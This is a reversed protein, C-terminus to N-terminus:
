KKKKFMKIKNWVSKINKNLSTDFKSDFPNDQTSVLFRSILGTNQNVSYPTKSLHHPKMAGYDIRPFLFYTINREHTWGRNKRKNEEFKSKLAENKGLISLFYSEEETGEILDKYIPLWLHEKNMVYDRQFLVEISIFFELNQLRYDDHNSFVWMHFGKGGSFFSFINDEEIGLYHNLLYLMIRQGIQGFKWCEECCTKLGSCGCEDRMNDSDCKDLDIDFFINKGKLRKEKTSNRNLIDGYFGGVHVVLPIIKTVTDKLQYFKTYIKWRSYTPGNSGTVTFAFERRMVKDKDNEFLEIILDYPFHNEYYVRLDKIRQSCVIEEEEM